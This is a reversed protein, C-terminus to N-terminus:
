AGIIIHDGVTHAIKTYLEEIVQGRVHTSISAQFEYLLSGKYVQEVVAIGIRALHITHNLLILGRLKLVVPVLLM